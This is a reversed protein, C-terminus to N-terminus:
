QVKEGESGNDYKLQEESDKMFESGQMMRIAEEEKKEKKVEWVLTATMEFKM